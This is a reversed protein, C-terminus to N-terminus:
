RIFPRRRPRDIGAGLSGELAERTDRIDRETPMFVLVDGADSELLADETARVAAEIHSLEDAREEPRAHSEIPAYRIEM